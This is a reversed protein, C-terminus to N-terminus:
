MDAYVLCLVIAAVAINVRYNVVLDIPSLIQSIPWCKAYNNAFSYHCRKGSVAYTSPLGLSGVRPAISHHLTYM